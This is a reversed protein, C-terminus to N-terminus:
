LHPHDILQFAVSFSCDEGLVGGTERQAATLIDLAKNEFDVV